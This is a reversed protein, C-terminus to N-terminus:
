LDRRRPRDAGKLAMKRRKRKLQREYYPGSELATPFPAHFHIGEDSMDGFYRWSHETQKVNFGRPKINVPSRKITM